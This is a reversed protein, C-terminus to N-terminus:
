VSQAMESTSLGYSLVLLLLPNVKTTNAQVTDKILPVYSTNPLVLAIDDKQYNQLWSLRKRLYSRLSFSNAFGGILIM